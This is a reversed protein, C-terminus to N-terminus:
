LRKLRVLVLYGSHRVEGFMFLGTFRYLTKESFRTARSCDMEQHLAEM